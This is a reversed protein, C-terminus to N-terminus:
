ATIIAHIALPSQRADSFKLGAKSHKSAEMRPSFGLQIRERIWLTRARSIQGNQKPLLAGM